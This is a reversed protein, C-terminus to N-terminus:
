WEFITTGYFTVSPHAPWPSDNLDKAGGSLPNVLRSSTKVSFLWFTNQLIRAHGAVFGPVLQVHICCLHYPIYTHLHYCAVVMFMRACVVRAEAPPTLLQLPVLTVDNTVWTINCAVDEFAMCDIGSRCRLITVKSYCLPVHIYAPYLLM